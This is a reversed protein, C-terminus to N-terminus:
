LLPKAAELLRRRGRLCFLRSPHPHQINSQNHSHMPTRHPAPSHRVVLKGPAFGQNYCASIAM